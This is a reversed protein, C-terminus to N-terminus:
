VGVQLLADSLKGLFDPPFLFRLEEPPAVGFDGDQCFELLLEFGAVAMERYRAAASGNPASLAILEAMLPEVRLRVARVTDLANDPDAVSWNFNM